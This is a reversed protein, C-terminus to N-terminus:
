AGPLLTGTIGMNNRPTPPAYTFTDDPNRVLSQGQVLPPGLLTGPQAPFNGYAVVDFFSDGWVIAGGPYPLHGFGLLPGYATADCTMAFLVQAEVTCAVFTAGQSGEMLNRDFVAFPATEVVPDPTYLKIKQGQVFVQGPAVLVLEIFQAEPHAVTGPFVEQIHILHVGAESPEAGFGVLGVVSMLSVSLACLKRTM